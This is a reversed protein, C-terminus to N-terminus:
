YSIIKSIWDSYYSVKTYTGLGSCSFGWSILGVLYWRNHRHLVMPGGSDGQCADCTGNECLGACLNTEWSVANLRCRDNSQIPVEVERLYRYDGTGQTAGWGTVLTREGYQIIDDKSPLCISRIFPNFVLPETLRLLAIDHMWRTLKGSYLPYILIQKITRAVRWPGRRHRDHMGFEALLSEPNSGNVCHAATVLWRANLISGGCYHGRINLLVQWPHSHPIAQRGGVIRSSIERYYENGNTWTLGCESFLSTRANFPKQAPVITSKLISSMTTLLPATHKLYYKMQFDVELSPDLIHLAIMLMRGIGGIRLNQRDGCIELKEHQLGITWLNVSGRHCGTHFYEKMSIPIYLYDFEVFIKQQNSSAVLWQCHVPTKMSMLVSKNVVLIGSNDAFSRILPCNMPTICRIHDILIVMMLTFAKGGSLSIMM